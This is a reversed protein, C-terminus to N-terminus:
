QKKKELTISGLNNGKKYNEQSNVKVVGDCYSDEVNNGFKSNGEDYRIYFAICHIFVFLGWVYPGIELYPIYYPVMRSELHLCRLVLSIMMLLSGVIPTIRSAISGYMSKGRRIVCESFLVTQLLLEFHICVKLLDKEVEGCIISQSLTFKIGDSYSGSNMTYIGLVYISFTLTCACLAGFVHVFNRTNKSDCLISKCFSYTGMSRSLSASIPIVQFFINSNKSYQISIESLSEGICYYFLGHVIHRRMSQIMNFQKDLDPFLELAITLPEKKQYRVHFLKLTECMNEIQIKLNSIMYPIMLIMGGLPGARFLILMWSYPTDLWGKEHKNKIALIYLVSGMLIYLGLRKEYLTSDSTKNIVGTNKNKENM